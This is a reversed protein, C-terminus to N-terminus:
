QLTVSETVGLVVRVGLWSKDLMAPNGLGAFCAGPEMEFALLLFRTLTARLFADGAIEGGVKRWSVHVLRRLISIMKLFRM